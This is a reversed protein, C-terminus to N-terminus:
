DTGRIRESASEDLLFTNEPVASGLSFTDLHHGPTGQQGKTLSDHSDVATERVQLWLRQNQNQNPAPLDHREYNVWNIFMVEQDRNPM